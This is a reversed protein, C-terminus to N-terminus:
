EGKFEPQRKQLFAAVGEARDKTTQLLLTLDTEFRLAEDFPLGLGRWVAEKGLQTAIPGRSAIVTAIRTAEALAEGPASVASVLGAALAEDASICGGHGTLSLAALNSCLLKLRQEVSDSGAPGRIEASADCVRIDAALALALASGQLPGTFACVVPLAFRSICELEDEDHTSAIPTTLDLVICQIVGDGHFTEMAGHFDLSRLVGERGGGAPPLPTADDRLRITMVRDLANM